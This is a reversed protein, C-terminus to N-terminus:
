LNNYYKKELFDITIKQQYTLSTLKDRYLALKDVVEKEIKKNKFSESTYVCLENDLNIAIYEKNNEIVPILKGVTKIIENKTKINNYINGGVSATITVAALITTINQSTNKIKELLKNM